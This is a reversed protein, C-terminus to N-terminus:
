NTTSDVPKVGRKLLQDDVSDLQRQLAKFEDAANDYTTVQTEQKVHQVAKGRKRDLLSDACAKRVSAPAKKDNQISLLVKLSDYETAALLDETTTKGQIQLAIGLADLYWELEVVKEVWIEPKGLIDGIEPDTLGQAKFLVVQYHAPSIISQPYKAKIQAALTKLDQTDEVTESKAEHM